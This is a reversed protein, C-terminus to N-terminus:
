ESEFFTRHAIIDLAAQLQQERDMLSNDLVVADEARRLPAEARTQDIHDRMAINDRVEKLTIQSGQALMEDYRRCARVEESATLFIKADANPFVVTGIDRGDLIVGGGQAMRRQLDVMRARVLSERAVFSVLDSVQPMRIERSVDRGDLFLCQKGDITRFEFVTDELLNDLKDVAVQTGQAFGAEMALLAAGRYMAGTDIYTIKLANAVDRALTSKGCSSHGDVAIVLGRGSRLLGGAQNCSM